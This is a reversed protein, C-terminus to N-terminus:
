RVSVGQIPVGPEFYERTCGLPPVDCYYMMCGSVVVALVIVLLLGMIRSARRCEFDGDDVWDEKRFM